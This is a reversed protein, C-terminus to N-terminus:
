RSEGLVRSVDVLRFQPSAKASHQLIALHGSGIILVIRERELELLRQINAFIKLNRNFWATRADVGPYEDGMGVEFGDILYQGHSRLVQEPENVYRLHETLSRGVKARDDWEHQRQYLLNIEPDLMHQQGHVVAISDPDVWPEYFRRKADVGYVRDHGMRAALRFGIQFVESPGLAASGNRFAAYLSDLWLQDQPSVEVAVKTPRFSALRDVLSRVEAQRAPSTIDVDFQPRYSDLGADQFHFTGLVLLEHPEEPWIPPSAQLAVCPSAGTLSATLVILLPSTRM